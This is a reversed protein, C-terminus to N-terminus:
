DDENTSPDPYALFFDNIPATLASGAQVHRHIIEELNMIVMAMKERRKPDNQTIGKLFTLAIKMHFMIVFQTFNASFRVKEDSAPMDRYGTPNLCIPLTDQDDDQQPIYESHGVNQLAAELVTITPAVEEHGIHTYAEKAKATLTTVHERVIEPSEFNTHTSPADELPLKTMGMKTPCRQDPHAFFYDDVAACLDGGAVCLRLPVYSLKKIFLFKVKNITQLDNGLVEELHKLLGAYHGIISCFTDEVIRAVLLEKDYGPKILTIRIIYLCLM